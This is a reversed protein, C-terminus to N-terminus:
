PQFLKQIESKIKHSLTIYVDVSFLKANWIWTRIKHWLVHHGNVGTVDALRNQWFWMQTHIETITLAIWKFDGLTKAEIIHKYIGSIFLNNHAKFNRFRPFHIFHWPPHSMEIHSRVNRCFNCFIQPSFVKLFDFINLGIFLQM